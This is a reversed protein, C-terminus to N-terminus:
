SPPYALQLHQLSPRKKLNLTRVFDAERLHVDKRCDGFAKAKIILRSQNSLM